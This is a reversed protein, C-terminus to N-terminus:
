QITNLLKTLSERTKIEKENIKFIILDTDENFSEFNINRMENLASLRETLLIVNLKKEDELSDLDIYNM